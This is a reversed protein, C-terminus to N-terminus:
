AELFQLVDVAFETPYQFLFGHGSHPYVILKGYPVKQQIVFSNYTPLMYDDYGNAVLVPSKLDALRDYTGDLGQSSPGPTFYKVIAARQANMGEGADIMDYSLWKAHEEGCSAVDREHIRAWYAVAAHEGEQSPPFFLIRMDELGMQASGSHREVGDLNPNAWNDAGVSSSTGCLIVKRVKLVKPDANLAVLQTVMGGISLGLVDVENVGILALFKHVDAAMERFSSKVTGPTSWGVGQYDYLIVNRKSAIANILLPDWHDMTARFHMLFLLPTGTTGGIRRFAFKTGDPHIAYRTKATQQTSM